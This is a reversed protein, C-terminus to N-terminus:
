FQMKKKINESNTTFTSVFFFQKQFQQGPEDLLGLCSIYWNIIGKVLKGHESASCLASSAKM